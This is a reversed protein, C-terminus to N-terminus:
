ITHVNNGRPGSIPDAEIAPETMRSTDDSHSSRSAFLRRLGTVSRRAYAAALCGGTPSYENRMYDADPFAHGALLRVKAVAGPSGKLDLWLSRSPTVTSGLYAASPEVKEVGSVAPRLIIPAASGLRQTTRALNEACLTQIEKLAALRWFRDWEAPRLRGALLKMDYLWLLNESDGHHAVRHICALLLAHVACPTLADAGLAEAITAESVLEAVSLMGAFLPRNSIAWHLDVIHLVSGEGRSFMWQTHVADRSVSPVKLYGADGLARSAHQRDKKAVLLDIDTRPRLYGAPYHTYALASGKLVLTTVEAGRLGALVRRTERYRLAELAAEYRARTDLAARISAPVDQWKGQHKLTWRLLPEVGFQAAVNLFAAQYDESELLKWPPAGWQLAEAVFQLTEQALPRVFDGDTISM